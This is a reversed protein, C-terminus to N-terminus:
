YETQMLVGFKPLQVSSLIQVKAAKVEKQESRKTNEAVAKKQTKINKMIM